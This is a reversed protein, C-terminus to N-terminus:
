AEGGGEKRAAGRRKVFMRLWGEKEREKEKEKDREKDREKDLDDGERGSAAAAPASALAATAVGSAGSGSGDLQREDASPGGSGAAHGDGTGPRTAAVSADAAGADLWFTDPQAELREAMRLWRLAQPGCDGEVPPRAEAREAREFVARGRQRLATCLAHFRLLPAPPTTGRMADADATGDDNDAAPGGPGRAGIGSSGPLARQHDLWLTVLGAFSRGPDILHPLSPFGERAAADLRTFVALPTAYAAVKSGSSRAHQRDTAPLATLADIFACFAARSGALFANAPSM